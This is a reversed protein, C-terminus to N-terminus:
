ITMELVVIAIEQEGSSLHTSGNCNVTFLKLQGSVGEGWEDLVISPM